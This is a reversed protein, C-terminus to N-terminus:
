ENKRKNVGCYLIGSNLALGFLPWLACMGLSKAILAQGSVYALMASTGFIILLITHLKMFFPGLGFKLM